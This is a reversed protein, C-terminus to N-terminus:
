NRGTVSRRALKDMFTQVDIIARRHVGEGILGVEDRCRVKFTLTRGEVAILEVEATVLAGVPTPAVHSVDIRVGVTHQGETLYPRVANICTQEIFGIMMATAFVPPMDAFGPWSSDVSPVLQHPTVRQQESHRLGVPLSNPTYNNM